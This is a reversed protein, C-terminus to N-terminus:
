AICRRLRQSQGSPFMVYKSEAAKKEGNFSLNGDPVVFYDGLNYLASIECDEVGIANANIKRNGVRVCIFVTICAFLLVLISILAGRRKTM